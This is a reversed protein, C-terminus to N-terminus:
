DFFQCKPRSTIRLNVLPRRDKAGGETRGSTEGVLPSIPHRAQKRWDGADCLLDGADRSAM